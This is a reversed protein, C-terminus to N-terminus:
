EECLCCKAQCIDALACIQDKMACDLLECVEDCCDSHGAARAARVKSVLGAYQSAVGGVTAPALIDIFAIIAQYFMPGYQVGWAFLKQITSRDFGADTLKQEAEAKSTIVSATKAMVEGERYPAVKSAIRGVLADDAVVEARCALLVAKEEASPGLFRPLGLVRDIGGVLVTRCREPDM